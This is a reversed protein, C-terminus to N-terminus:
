GAPHSASGKALVRIRLQRKEPARLLLRSPSSRYDRGEDFLDDVTEALATIEVTDGPQILLQQARRNHMGGLDVTHLHVGRGREVRANGPSVIAREGGSAVYFEAIAEDREVLHWFGDVGMQSATASRWDEVTYQYYVCREATLTSEILDRPLVQGRVTVLRGSRVESLSLSRPPFLGALLTHVLSM